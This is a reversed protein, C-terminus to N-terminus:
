AWSDLFMYPRRPMAFINTEIKQIKLYKQMQWLRLPGGYAMVSPTSASETLNTLLCSWNPKIQICSPGIEGLEAEIEREAAREGGGKRAWSCLWGENPLGEGRALWKSGSLGALRDSVFARLVRWATPTAETIFPKGM